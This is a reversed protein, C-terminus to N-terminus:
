VAAEMQTGALVENRAQIPAAIPNAAIDDPTNDKMKCYNVQPLPDRAQIPAEIIRPAIIDGDVESNDKTTGYNVDKQPLASSQLTLSELLLTALAFRM